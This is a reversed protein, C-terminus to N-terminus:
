YGINSEACQPKEKKGGKRESTPLQLRSGLSFHLVEASGGKEGWNRLKLCLSSENDGGGKKEFDTFHFLRM